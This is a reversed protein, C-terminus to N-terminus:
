RLNYELIKQIALKGNENIDRTGIGAFNETLPHPINTNPTDYNKQQMNVVFGEQCINYQYRFWWNKEQDFVFVPKRNDIAMQVAWTPCNVAWGTGGEVIKDTMSKAIAFIAEANKVQFWNRSLLSMTYTTINPNYINRKLTKSAILVNDYGEDLESNTLIRQNKGKQVHNPFSYAITKIGYKECQTEWEMDSGPCGGSHCVYNM